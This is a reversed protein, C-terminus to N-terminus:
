IKNGIIEMVRYILVLVDQRTINDHLRLDGNENGKLIGDAIAKDIYPKAYDDPKNDLIVAGKM